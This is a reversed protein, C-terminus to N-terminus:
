KEVGKMLQDLEETTMNKIDKELRLPILGLMSRYQICYKITKNWADKDLALYIPSLKSAKIEEARIDDLHTGLLAVANLYDSARIASFQDEVVVM